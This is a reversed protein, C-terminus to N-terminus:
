ATYKYCVMLSVRDHFFLNQFREGLRFLGGFHGFGGADVLFLDVLDDLLQDLLALHFGRFPAIVGHFPLLRRMCAVVPPRVALLQCTRGGKADRRVYLWSASKRRNAFCVVSLSQCSMATMRKPMRNAVYELPFYYGGAPSFLLINQKKLLLKYRAHLFM